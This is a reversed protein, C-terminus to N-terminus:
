TDLLSNDLVMKLIKPIIHGPISGLDGPGNTFVEVVPGILRYYLFLLFFNSCFRGACLIHM